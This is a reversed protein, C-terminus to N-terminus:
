EKNIQFHSRNTLLLLLLIVKYHITLHRSSIPKTLLFNDIASKKFKNEKIVDNKTIIKEM